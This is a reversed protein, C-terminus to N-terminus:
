KGGIGSLPSKAPAQGTSIQTMPTAPQTWPTFSGQGQPMAGMQKFAQLQALPALSNDMPARTYRPNIFQAPDVGQVPISQFPNSNKFYADLDAKTVPRGADWRDQMGGFNNKFLTAGLMASALQNSM